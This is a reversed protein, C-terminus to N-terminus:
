AAMAAVRVADLVGMLEDLDAASFLGDPGQPTLDTFPSEYLREPKVAGHETLHDVILNIFEIQNAALSKGELFSALAEKAAGRDMGVLSRVFLGLGHSEEAARQLDAPEGLGSEALMRELENLDSTTLRKNSRLKHIAVHDLHQRLFDRAKAVFKEYDTGVALNGLEIETESGMVDEFDTYVPKRQRGDILQILDRLRRRLRELMPITADQWWEDTQVDQILAMQAQVMPIAAKEELLGVIDRVRDRLRAYRSESRLLALQLQLLLLDFRKAEEQEPDIGSPLGAVGDSLEAMAEPPLTAWAEPKAYKEVLRRRPRVVFNDVKM